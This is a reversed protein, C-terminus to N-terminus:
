WVFFQTNWAALPLSTAMAIALAAATRHRKALRWALSASWLAALALLVVRVGHAWPLTVGEGALQSTTLLSLGVFVSTGAFPILTQSLRQWPLETLIGALKLWGWVWGGVVLMEAGIYALLLGGDLWTFVDNAEPYYTFLWWHGAENLPWWVAHDVLWGAAAQKAAVFWPSASWQFAGLAVGLMGFVLLRAPWDNM